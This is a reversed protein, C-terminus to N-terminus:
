VHARGIEVCLGCRSQDPKSAGIQAARRRGFKKGGIIAVKSSKSIMSYQSTNM